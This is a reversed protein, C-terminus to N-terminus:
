LQEYNEDTVPQQENVTFLDVKGTLVKEITPDLLQNDIPSDKHLKELNKLLNFTRAHALSLVGDYTRPTVITKGETISDSADDAIRSGLVFATIETWNQIKGSKRIESAYELAQNKEKRNIEFGGRKLEIILLKAFGNVESRKDYSNSSYLGITSNPLVVFDPRKRPNSLPRSLQSQLFTEIVTVLTRNSTFEISEYEPGFIWLGVDFLPQLDHLEDTKPDNM